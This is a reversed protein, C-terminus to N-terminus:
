QIRHKSQDRDLVVHTKGMNSIFSHYMSFAVSSIGIFFVVVIGIGWKLYKRKRKKKKQLRRSKEAM